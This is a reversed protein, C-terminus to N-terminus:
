DESDEANAAVLRVDDGIRLWGGEVVRATIGGHGRMLNYGGPGLVEEMRSCPQCRGSHELVADGIQFRRDKLALLNLGSVVLNRRLMEACVQEVGALAAIVALHEHQILTVGRNGSGGSYHDGELGGGTIALARPASVVPGRRASRLGIWNLRGTDPFRGTLESVKQM